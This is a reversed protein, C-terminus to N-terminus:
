ELKRWSWNTVQTNFAVTLKAHYRYMCWVPYQHIHAHTHKPTPPPLCKHPLAVFKTKHILSYLNKLKRPLSLQPQPPFIGPGGVETGSERSHTGALKQLWTCVGTLLWGHTNRYGHAFMILSSQHYLSKDKYVFQHRKWLSITYYAVRSLCHSSFPKTTLVPCFCYIEMPSFFQFYKSIHSILAPFANIMSILWIEM